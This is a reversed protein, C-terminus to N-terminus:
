PALTAASSTSTPSSVAPSYRAKRRASFKKQATRQWMCSMALREGNFNTLIIKFGAGEEGVLQTGLIRGIQWLLLGAVVLVPCSIRSLAEAPLDYEEDANDGIEVFRQEGRGTM